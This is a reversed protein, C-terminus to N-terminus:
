GEGRRPYEGVTIAADVLTGARLLRVPVVDGVGQAALLSMVEGPDSVPVGGLALVVDGLLIGARDAPGGSAVSVVMMGMEGAVNAERNAQTLRVPQGGLGLYGRPVYGRELLQDTVRDVTSAPITIPAGRGLRSTNIGLVAGAASVLPGGSFGDYVVLDLRVLRDIRGGARTRWEGDVRSVAGMSATVSAGPRGLALVLSGVRPVADTHEAPPADGEFRLVALDTGPDRGALTAPVTAGGDLTVTVDEDRELTHHAAVIVGPRWVVGSAPIRRRAHVAVVSRGVREVADALGDSLAQLTESM